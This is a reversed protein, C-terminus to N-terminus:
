VVARVRYTYLTNPSLGLDDYANTPVDFAIIAGDREIDYAVAGVFADWTLDIENPSIAVAILNVPVHKDLSATDVAAGTDRAVEEVLSVLDFRFLEGTTAQSIGRIGITARDSTAPVTWLTSLRVWGDAPQLTVMPGNLFGTNNLASDLASATLQIQQNARSAKVYAAMRYTVGAAIPVGTPLVDRHSNVADTNNGAAAITQSLVGVYSGDPATADAVRTVQPGPSTGGSWNGYWVWWPGGEGAVPTEVSLNLFPVVTPIAANLSVMADVGTGGDPVAKAVTSAVDIASGSDSATLAATLASADTGAAADTRTDATTLASADAGVAVDTVPLAATLVSTEVSSASDIISTTATAAQTLAPLASTIAATGPLTPRTQFADTQFSTDEFGEILGTDVATVLDAGTASDSVSFANGASVSSTDTSSGADTVAWAAATLTDVATASDTVPLAATLASVDAGVATDTAVVAVTVVSIDAATAADSAPKALTPATDAATATDTATLAATLAATDTATGSDTASKSVAGSPQNWFWILGAV